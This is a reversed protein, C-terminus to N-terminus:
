KSSLSATFAEVKEVLTKFDPAEISHRGFTPGNSFMVDAEFAIGQNFLRKRITFSIRECYEMNFPDRLDSVASSRFTGQLLKM